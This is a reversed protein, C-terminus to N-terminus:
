YVKNNCADRSLALPITDAMMAGVAPRSDSLHASETCTGVHICVHVYMYVCIYKRTCVRTGVRICVHVQMYVCM